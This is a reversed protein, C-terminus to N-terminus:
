LRAEVWAHPERYLRARLEHLLRSKGIGAEGVLFVLQGQGERAAEFATILSDLERARGM